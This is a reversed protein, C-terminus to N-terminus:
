IYNANAPAIDLLCLHLLLRIYFIVERVDRERINDMQFYKEFNRRLVGAFVLKLMQM